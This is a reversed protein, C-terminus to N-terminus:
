TVWVLRASSLHLSGERCMGGGKDLCRYIVLFQRFWRGTNRKKRAPVQMTCM